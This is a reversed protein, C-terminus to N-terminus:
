EVAARADFGTAEIIVSIALSRAVEEVAAQTPTQRVTNYRTRLGESRQETRKAAMMRVSIVVGSHLSCMGRPVFWPSAIDEFGYGSKRRSIAIAPAM